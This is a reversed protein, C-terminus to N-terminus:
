KIISTFESASYHQIYKSPEVGAVRKADLDVTVIQDSYESQVIYMFETFLDKVIADAKEAADEYDLATVDLELIVKFTKEKM